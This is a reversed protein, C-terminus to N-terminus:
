GRQVHAQAQVVGGRAADTGELRQMGAADAEIDAARRDLRRRVDAVQAAGDRQVDQVAPQALLAQRDGEHAVGGVDVVLHDVVGGVGALRPPRERRAGAAGEGLRVVRDVDQRRRGLGPDGARDALDDRQHLAQDVTPRRVLGAAVDVERHALDRRVAGQRPLARVM